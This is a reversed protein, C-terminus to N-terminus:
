RFAPPLAPPTFGPVRYRKMGEVLPHLPYELGGYNSGVDGAEHGTFEDHVEKEIRSFRAYDKFTHRFSHYVMKKDTVKCTGRLWRGFWKSWSAAVNGYKDPKLAPFLRKHGAARMADVYRLFGLATLADHIPVRRESGENKLRQILEFRQQDSAMPAAEEGAAFVFRIVWARAENGEDDLYVEQVVDSTRLQGLERQRAGTYLGLVPLWYAAEEGGADPRIDTAYVPSDFIATLAPMDFPTRNEGKRKKPVVINIGDCPDGQILRNARAYRCLARLLGLKNNGTAKSSHAALLADKYAQAMTPTLEATTLQGVTLKEVEAVVSRTREITKLTPEREKAWREVLEAVTIVKAPDPLPNAAAFAAAGDGDLVARLANRGVEHSAMAHLPEDRGEIVAQHWDLERRRDLTWDERDNPALVDRQARLRGVASAVRHEFPAAQIAAARRKAAENAQAGAKKAIQNRKAEFEEDLKVWMRRNLIAAEAPDNTGLAVVLEKQGGYAAILDVPVRRRCSYAGGRRLVKGV